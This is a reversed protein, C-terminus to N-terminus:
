RICARMRQQRENDVCVIFKVWFQSAMNVSHESRIVMYMADLFEVECIVKM